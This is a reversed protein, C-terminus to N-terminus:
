LSSVEGVARGRGIVARLCPHAPRAPAYGASRTRRANNTQPQTQQSGRAHLHTPLYPSPSPSSSHSHYSSPLPFLSALPLHLHMSPTVMTPYTLFRRPDRARRWALHPHISISIPNDQNTSLRTPYRGLYTAPSM